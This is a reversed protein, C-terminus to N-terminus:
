WNNDFTLLQLRIMLMMLYFLLIFSVFVFTMRIVIDDINLMKNLKYQVTKLRYKINLIILM